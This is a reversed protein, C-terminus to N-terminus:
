KKNHIVLLTGTCHLVSSYFDVLQSLVSHPRRYKHHLFTLFASVAFVLIHILVEETRSGIAVMSVISNILGWSGTCSLVLSLFEAISPHMFSNNAKHVLCYLICGFLAIVFYISLSVKLDNQAMSQVLSDIAGWGSCWLLLQLLLAIGEDLDAQKSVRVSTLLPEDSDYIDFQTVM